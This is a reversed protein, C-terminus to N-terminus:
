LDLMVVDPEDIRHTEELHGERGKGYGKAQGFEAFAIEGVLEVYRVMLM